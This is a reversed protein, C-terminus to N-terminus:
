KESCVKDKLEPDILAEKMKSCQTEGEVKIIQSWLIAVNEISLGDDDTLVAIKDLTELVSKAVRIRMEEFSENKIEQQQLSLVKILRALQTGYEYSETINLQNPKKCNEVQSCLIEAARAQRKMQNRTPLQLSTDKSTELTRDNLTKAKSLSLAVFDIQGTFLWGWVDALGENLSKLVFENYTSLNKEKIKKAVYKAFYAHFLEHGIVGANLPVPLQEETYPVFYIVDLEANYFANNFRNDPSKTKARLGVKRPWTLNESLNLKEEFKKLSQLHYYLSTMQLSLVDAPIMVGDRSEIFRAVPAQGVLRKGDPGNKEGPSYTFEVIDGRLTKSDRVGELHVTEVKSGESSSVVVQTVFSQGSQWQSPVRQCSTLILSTLIVLILIPRAPLM